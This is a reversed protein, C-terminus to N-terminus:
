KNRRNQLNKAIGFFFRNEKVVNHEEFKLLSNLMEVFLIIEYFKGLGSPNLSLNDNPIQL